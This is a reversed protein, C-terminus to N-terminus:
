HRCDLARFESDSVVPKLTWVWGGKDNWAQDYINAVLYQIDFQRCALRAQEATANMFLPNIAAVMAPCGTPDGGLESGCWLQGAAIAAQHNINILDLNKWFVWSESPNFQVIAGRPIVADLHAYGLYSIYAKHPLAAVEPNKAQRANIESLPLIFRLVLVRWATSLVGVVIMLSVLSRVWYPTRGAFGSAFNHTIVNIQELKWCILCESLLLLLPYQIFLASHIGFDNVNIVRSSILSTIPFTVIAIFVLTQQAVTLEKRGRWAPMSFVVLVLAYAGLELAFGPPLLILKAIARAVAPHGAAFSELLGSHILHDPPITERVSWMFPSNGGERSGAMKSETHTIEFLYPILLVAGIAGGAFLASPSQWARKFLAQWLTWCVMLLFFAFTVYVSLGFASAVSVAIFLISAARDRRNGTSIMWALLLAFMCCVMSSLHHPYFLFFNVFDTIQGPFWVDGPPPIHLYFMNWFCICLSLGGVAPLAAAILFQRRLRAGVVLFHKLYLGTLSQLCFGSWVCGAGVVSRMPLHTIKAVVACDVLWFYYYRLKSAHLYFYFPNAPPVGTRFVSNAWNVRAGIDYFTLSMFLRQHSQIDVLSLVVFMIWVVSLVLVTGGLPRLGLAWSRGERRRHVWEIACVVICGILCVMSVGAALALSFFRGILVFSITSIAISLPISWCIREVFSRERFGHFNTVWAALYGSCITVPVFAPIAALTTVIQEM